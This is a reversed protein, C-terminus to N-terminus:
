RVLTAVCEVHHTMPFLDLARLSELRYGHTAFTAVDRALAAPDCAVYVVRPTGSEAVQAVVRAGAGTRPPDLVVVDPVAKGPKIEDLVVEDPVVEDPVVEDLVVEDLVAGVDGQHLVVWDLDHTNRRADRVARADGEITTVRGSPGVALALPVSLLGAGSYLDVVHAGALGAVGGPAAAHLVADVITEPAREHVQWFGAAAVRLELVPVGDDDVSVGAGGAGPEGASGVVGTLAPVRVSETVSRRANPREDLRGHRWPTGDVLLVGPGGSAPAVAEIRTGPKWRRSFVGERALLAAAGAAAIPVSTLRQVDHSRHGHMGARGDRGAVLDVRTRWALGGREDDGAVPEVVVDIGLADLDLRALRTLQERVVDVKWRRQGALSVHALEGGGV